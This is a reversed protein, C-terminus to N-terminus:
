PCIWDDGVQTPIGGDGCTVACYMPFECNHVVCGSEPCNVSCTNTGGCDVECLSTDPCSVSCDDSGECTVACEHDEGCAVACSGDAETDCEIDCRDCDCQCAYDSGLEVCYGGCPDGDGMLGDGGQLAEDDLLDSFDFDLCALSAPTCVVVVLWTRLASSIAQM